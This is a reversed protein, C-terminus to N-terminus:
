LARYPSNDGNYEDTLEGDEDRLAFICYAVTNDSLPVLRHNHEAKIVFFTPATYVQPAFGEVHVILSGQALLSVHDHVHKHGITDVDKKPYYQKRVWVNGFYGMEVVQKSHDKTPTTGTAIAGYLGKLQHKTLDTSGFHLYEVLLIKASRPISADTLITLIEKETISEPIGEIDKIIYDEKSM